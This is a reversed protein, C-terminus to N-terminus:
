NKTLPNLKKSAEQQSADAAKPHRSRPTVKRWGHRELLYYFGSLSAKHGLREQYAQHMEKVTTLQGTEALKEMDKLFAVEEEISMHENFRGGRQDDLVREIGGQFYYKM